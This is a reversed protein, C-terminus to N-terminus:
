IARASKISVRDANLSKHVFNPIRTLFYFCRVNADLGLNGRHNCGSALVHNQEDMVFTKNGYLSLATISVDPVNTFKEVNKDHGLALQGYKNGGTTWLKNDIDMIASHTLGCAMSKAFIDPVLTFGTMDGNCGLQGKNNHGAAWVRGDECLIMFHHLGCSVMTAVIGPYLTPAAIRDSPLQPIIAANIGFVWLNGDKDIGISHNFAVGAIMKYDKGIHSIMATKIEEIPEHGKYEFIPVDPCANQVPWSRTNGDEDILIVM